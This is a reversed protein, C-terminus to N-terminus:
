KYKNIFDDIMQFKEKAEELDAFDAIPYNYDPSFKIVITGVSINGSDDRKLIVEKITDFSYKSVDDLFIIRKRSVTLTKSEADFYYIKQFDTSLWASIILIYGSIILFSSFWGLKLNLKLTDNNTKGRVFNKLQSRQKYHDFGSKLNSFILTNATSPYYYKQRDGLLSFRSREPSAKIVIQKNNLLGRLIGDVDKVNKIETKDSKLAIAKREILLCNIQTNTRECRLSSYVPTIFLGWYLFSSLAIASVILGILKLIPDTVFILRSESSEKLEITM